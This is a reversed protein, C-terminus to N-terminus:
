RDTKLYMDAVTKRPSFEHQGIEAIKKRDLYCCEQIAKCLEDIIREEDLEGNIQVIRGTDGTLACHPCDNSKWTLAAVPVGSLAYEGFGCPGAEVYNKNLTYIICSAQSILKMKDKGTVENKVCNESTFYKVHPLSFLPEYKQYYKKERIPRGLLYIDRKLKKAALIALHPQKDADFRGIWLLNDKPKSIQPEEEYGLVIFKHLIPNQDEFLRCMEHTFCFLFHKVNDFIGKEYRLHPITQRTLSRVSLQSFKSVFNQDTWYECGAVLFDARGFKSLFDEVNIKEIPTEEHLVNEFLNLRWRPGVLIVRMGLKQSEAAVMWLWRELAGYGVPPFLYSSPFDCVIVTKGKLEM